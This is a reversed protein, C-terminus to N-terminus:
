KPAEQFYRFFESKPDLVFTTDRGHMAQRYAELSRYFSYFEPDRNYAKAYIEAAAADGEGRVQNSDREAEALLVQRQRDADARITESRETGTSRLENAVKKREARMRNYVSESVTDPLEIRKIRVDILQIGLEEVASSSQALLQEMISSREGSVVEALKRENIEKGLAQRVVPLLRQNAIGVDGSSATYFKSVDKIRWKVFFDISVDKKESTLYPEPQSELTLVRRDFTRVSQVMPLKFHLGPKFDTSVVRGFQFLAALENERVVFISSAFLAALLLAVILSVLKM